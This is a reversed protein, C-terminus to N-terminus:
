SRVTVPTERVLRYTSSTTTAGTALFPALAAGYAVLSPDDSAAVLDGTSGYSGSDHVPGDTPARVTTWGAEDPNAAGDLAAMPDGGHELSLAVVGDPMPVTATPSGATLVVRPDCMAAVEPDGALQEASLGGQSFGVFAVEDDPQVGADRMAAVAGVTVATRQGGVARLNTEMDAPNPGGGRSGTQTAPLYVVVRGPAGGTGPTRDVRVAGPAPASSKKLGGATRIMDGPTAAPAVGTTRPTALRATTATGQDFGMWGQRAAWRAVAPAGPAATGLVAVSLGPALAAAGVLADVGAEAVEDQHLGLGDWAQSAAGTAVRGAAHVGASWAAGRMSRGLAAAEEPTAGSALAQQEAARGAAWSLAALEAAGLVAGPVAVALVVPVAGWLVLGGVGQRLGDVAASTTGEWSRYAAVSARVATAVADVQVALATLAVGCRALSAVTEAVGRPALVASGLLHPSAAVGGVALAAGGLVEARAGLAAALADLAELEATTGGAGGSVALDTVTPASM